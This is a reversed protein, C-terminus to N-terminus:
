QRKADKQLTQRSWQWVAAVAALFLFLLVAELPPVEMPAHAHKRADRELRAIEETTLEEPIVEGRARREDEDAKKARIEALSKRAHEALAALGGLAPQVDSLAAAPVKPPFQESAAQLERRHDELSIQVNGSLISCSKIFDIKPFDKRIYGNGERYLQQQDAGDGFPKIDGMKHIADLVAFNAPNATVRGFPTEWPEKGLYDLDAYAIFIQSSRSHPGSGAYSLYGRRVPIHLNADDQILRGHRDAYQPKDSIGFQTLFGPVSRFMAIDSYFGDEVLKVFNAAGIPSWNAFVDITLDGKTTHCLVQSTPVADREIPMPDPMNAAGTYTYMSSLIVYSYIMAVISICFFVKSSMEMYPTASLLVTAVLNLLFHSKKEFKLFPFEGLVGRFNSNKINSLVKVVSLVINSFTFM